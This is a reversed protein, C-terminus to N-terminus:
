RIVPKRELVTVEGSYELTIKIKKQLNNIVEYSYFYNSFRRFITKVEKSEVNKEM